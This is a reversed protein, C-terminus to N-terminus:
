RMCALAKNLLVNKKADITFVRREDPLMVEIKVTGKMKELDKMELPSSLVFERQWNSRDSSNITTFLSFHGGPSSFRIETFTLVHYVQSFEDNNYSFIREQGTKSFTLYEKTGALQVTHYHVKQRNSPSIKEKCQAFLSPQGTFLLYVSGLLFHFKKCLSYKM